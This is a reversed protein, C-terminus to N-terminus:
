ATEILQNREEELKGIQKEAATKMADLQNLADRIQDEVIGIQEESQNIQDLVAWDFILGDFFYDGFTCFGDPKIQIDAEIHIDALETEFARLENGLCTMQAQAEDLHSHKAMTSILGGGLLDFTGWSHASDLSESISVATLLAQKGADEAEEVERYQAELERIKEELRLLEVRKEDGSSRLFDAKEDIVRQYEEECGMLEDRERVAADIDGKLYEMQRCASQYNAEATFAEKQEQDLKDQLSGTIRSFVASLSLRELKDVDAQEEDRLAKLRSVENEMREQQIYLNSLQRELQNLRSQKQHLELLQQDFERM